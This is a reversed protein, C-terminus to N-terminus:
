VRAEASGCVAVDNVKVANERRLYMVSRVRCLVRIEKYKVGRKVDRMQYLVMQFTIVGKNLRHLPSSNVSEFIGM